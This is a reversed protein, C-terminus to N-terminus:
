HKCLIDTTLNKLIKESISDANLSNLDRLYKQSGLKHFFEDKTGFRLLRVSINNDVIWEAISSGLGGILSHEEITAIVTFDSAIKALLAIDLPKITHMNIIQAQINHKELMKATQITEYLMNGTTILCLDKGKQIIFGKGIKMDPINKHVLPEGKKGLRMYIPGSYNISENLIKRVEFADGPCVVTMNPITKLFSIDDCSHHSGGLEAYSLGAGVGIIIVNQSHYCIDLKIQELCKITHFPAITYTIPRLGCMAMGAAMGIMNTEAIGCNYFRNPFLKKFDDFVRNGIDGSLLVIRQDLSALKTLENAFANRM